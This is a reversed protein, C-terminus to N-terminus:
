RLLIIKKLDTESGSRLRCFYVGSAVRAGSDSRGNWILKRAGANLRGSFVTRVKRGSVDFIGIEVPDNTGSCQLEITVSPNFPNPYVAAISTEPIRTVPDADTVAPRANILISVNEANPNTVALDINGDGNLDAACVSRPDSEVGYNDVAAFRGDWLSKLISINNSGSNAVVL